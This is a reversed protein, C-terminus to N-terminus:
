SNQAPGTCAPHHASVLISIIASDLDTWHGNRLQSITKPSTGVRRALAGDSSVGFKDRARDLAQAVIPILQDKDLLM